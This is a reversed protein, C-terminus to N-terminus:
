KIFRMEKKLVIKIKEKETFHSGHKKEAVELLKLSQAIYSFLLSNNNTKSADKKLVALHKKITQIDGREIPGSLANVAGTKKINALTSFVIPSIMEFFNTNINGIKNFATEAAFLNGALFNSAFVGALHYFTKTNSKLKFPKLSIDKALDFLTKEATKNDTEVAAYCGILPVRRKSPFTQMIHLSATQGKGKQLSDLCSIDLAGSLHVFIFRSLRLKLKSLEKTTAKIQNDPVCLFVIGGGIDIDGLKDSYHRTGFKGALRKASEIKRSIIVAINYGSKQLAPVISYAIKGAGIIIVDKNKENL